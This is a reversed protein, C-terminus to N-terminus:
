VDGPEPHGDDGSCPTNALGDAPDVCVSAPQGAAGNYASRRWANEVTFEIAGPENGHSWSIHGYRFHSHGDDGHGDAPGAALATSM